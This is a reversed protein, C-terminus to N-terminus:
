KKVAKKTTTLEMQEGLLSAMGDGFLHQITQKAAQKEGAEMQKQIKALALMTPAFEKLVEVIIKSQPSGRVDALASVAEAVDDPLSITVRKLLTSM